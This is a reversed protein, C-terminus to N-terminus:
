DEIRRFGLLERREGELREKGQRWLWLLAFKRNERSRV